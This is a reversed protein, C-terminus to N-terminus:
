LMIFISNRTVQVLHPCFCPRVTTKCPLNEFGRKGELSQTSNNQYMTIVIRWRRDALHSWLMLILSHFLFFKRVSKSNQSVTLLLCIHSYAHICFGAPLRRKDWTLQVNFELQPTAVYFILTQAVKTWCLRNLRGRISM